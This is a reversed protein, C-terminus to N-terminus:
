SPRESKAEVFCQVLKGNKSELVLKRCFNMSPNKICSRVLELADIYEAQDDLYRKNDPYVAVFVQEKAEALGNQLKELVKDLLPIEKLNDANIGVKESVTVDSSTERIAKVEHHERSSQLVLMQLDNITHGLSMQVEGEFCDKSVQYKEKKPYGLSTSESL